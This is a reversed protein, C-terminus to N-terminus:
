SLAQVPCHEICLGCKRCMAKNIFAVKEKMSIADAPCVQMCKRCGICLETDVVPM